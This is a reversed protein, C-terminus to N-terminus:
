VLVGERRVNLFFPNAGREYEEETVFVRSIVVDHQLSLAAVTASTRRMLDGYDFEGRVVVLVDLDSDDRADGRAQSGYLVVRALRVGLARELEQRLQALVSRSQGATMAAFIGWSRFAVCVLLRQRNLALPADYAGSALLFSRL